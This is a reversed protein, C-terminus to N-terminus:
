KKVSYLAGLRPGDPMSAARLQGAGKDDVACPTRERDTRGIAHVGVRDAQIRSDDNLFPQGM